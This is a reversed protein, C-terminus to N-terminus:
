PRESYSKAPPNLPSGISTTLPSYVPIGMGAWASITRSPSATGLRAGHVAMGSRAQGRWVEGMRADRGIRVGEIRKERLWCRVTEPHMRLREAADAVTLLKERGSSIPYLNVVTADM